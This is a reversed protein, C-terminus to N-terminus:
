QKNINDINYDMSHFYPSNDGERLFAWLSVNM